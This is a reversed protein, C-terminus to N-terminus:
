YSGRPTLAHRWQLDHDLIHCPIGGRSHYCKQSEKCGLSFVQPMQLAKSASYPNCRM